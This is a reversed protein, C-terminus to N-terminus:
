GKDPDVTSIQFLSVGDVIHGKLLALLDGPNVDHKCFIKPSFKTWHPESFEIGLIQIWRLVKPILPFVTHILLDPNWINGTNSHEANMNGSRLPSRFGLSSKSHDYIPQTAFPRSKSHSRFDLLGVMQFASLHCGIQWFGNSIGGLVEPKCITQSEFLWNNVIM